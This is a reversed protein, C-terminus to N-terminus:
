REALARILANPIVADDWAPPEEGLRVIVLDHAPLVYVRQHHYGDLYFINATAFPASSASNVAPYDKTRAKIWLHMGFTAELPSPQRLTNIWDAPVVQAGNVRGQHLLMQGVRLWDQATAFFCCFPKARGRPRDLWLFSDAAGLPQWLRTSLYDGFTEGTAAELVLSLIQSNVNNYEFVQRPPHTQPIALAIKRVDSGGYLRVLDSQLTDTRDDNRLGSQMYLLDALTLQGRPDNRWQPLYTDVTDSLAQIHGEELAIGVLLALLTKTMSMGNVPDAATHGQWYRELILRDRHLILLAVSNQAEAFAAVEDLAAAPITGPDDDSQPSLPIPAVSPAVGPVGQRPRYWAAATAPRAPYNLSRAVLRWDGLASFVGAMALVAVM